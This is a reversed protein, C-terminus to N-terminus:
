TVTSHILHLFTMEPSSVVFYHTIFVATSNLNLMVPSLAGEVTRPHQTYVQILKISQILDFTTPYNVHTEESMGLFQQVHILDDHITM